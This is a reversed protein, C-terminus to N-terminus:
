KGRFIRMIKSSGAIERLDEKCLLWPLFTIVIVCRYIIWQPEVCIRTLYILFLNVFIASIVVIGILQTNRFGSFFSKAGAMVKLTLKVLTLFTNKVLKL